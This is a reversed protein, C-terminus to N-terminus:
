LEKAELFAKHEEAPVIVIIKGDVYDIDTVSLDGYDVVDNGELSYVCNGEDDKIWSVNMFRSSIVYLLDQVTM